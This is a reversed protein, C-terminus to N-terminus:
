VFGKSCVKLATKCSEPRRARQWVVRPLKAIALKGYLARSAPTARPRVRKEWKMQVRVASSFSAALIDDCGGAAPFFGAVREIGAGLDGDFIELSRENALLSATGDADDAASTV